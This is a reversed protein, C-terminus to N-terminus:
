FRFLQDDLANQFLIRLKNKFFHCLTPKYTLLDYQKQSSKLDTELVSMPHSVFAQLELELPDEVSKWPCRYEQTCDGCFCVPINM